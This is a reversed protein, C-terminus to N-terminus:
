NSREWVQPGWEKGLNQRLGAGMSRHEWSGSQSRHIVKGGDFKSRIHMWSEALNTGLLQHAKGVLRTVLVQVDHFLEPSVNTPAQEGQSADNEVEHTDTVTEIWLQEQDTVVDANKYCTNSIHNYSYNEIKGLFDDGEAQPGSSSM